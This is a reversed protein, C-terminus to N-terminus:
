FGSSMKRLHDIEAQRLEKPLFRRIEDDNYGIQIRRGDTIIPRKMLGPHEILLDILQNLSLDDFDMDLKKYISSRTSIIDSTGNETLSLIDRIENRTMPKSFMNREKFEIGHEIFWAKAKRCSTCSPAVYLRIM